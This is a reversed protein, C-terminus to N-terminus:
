RKESLNGKPVGCSRRTPHTRVSLFPLHATIRSNPRTDPRRATLAPRSLTRPVSRSTLPPTPSAWPPPSFMRLDTGPILGPVEMEVTCDCQAAAHVLTTVANHGRTAEGVACCSRPIRPRASWITSETYRDVGAGCVLTQPPRRCVQRQDNNKCHTTPPQNVVM